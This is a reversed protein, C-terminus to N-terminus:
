KGKLRICAFRMMSDLRVNANKNWAFRLYLARRKFWNSARQNKTVCFHKLAVGFVDRSSKRTASQGVRNTRYVETHLEDDVLLDYYFILM